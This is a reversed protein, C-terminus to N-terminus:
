MASDVGFVIGQSLGSYVLAHVLNGFKDDKLKNYLGMLLTNSVANVSREYVEGSMRDMNYKKIMNKLYEDLIFVRVGSLITSRKIDFQSSYDSMIKELIKDSAYSAAIEKGTDILKNQNM